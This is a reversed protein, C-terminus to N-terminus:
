GTRFRPALNRLCIIFAPWLLVMNHVVSLKSSSKKKQQYTFPMTPSRDPFHAWLCSMLFVWGTMEARIMAELTSSTHMLQDGSKLFVIVFFCTCAPSSFNFSGWFDECTLFIVGGTLLVSVLDFLILSDEWYINSWIISANRGCTFWIHFLSLSLFSGLPTKFHKTSKIKLNDGQTLSLKHSEFVM